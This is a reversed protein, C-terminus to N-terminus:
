SLDSLRKGKSMKAQKLGRLVSVKIKPIVLLEAMEELSELEESSVLTAKPQGNVTIIVRSMTKEVRAVLEPLNARVDSISLLNNMRM